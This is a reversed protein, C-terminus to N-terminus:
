RDDDPERSRKALVVLVQAVALGIVFCLWVTLGALTLGFGLAIGFVCLAIPFWKSEFWM